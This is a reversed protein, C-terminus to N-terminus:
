FKLFNWFINVWDIWVNWCCFENKSSDLVEIFENIGEEEEGSGKWLSFILIGVGKTTKGKGGKLGAKPAKKALTLNKFTQM